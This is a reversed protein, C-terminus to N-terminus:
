FLKSELRTLLKAEIFEEGTHFFKAFSLKDQDIDADFLYSSSIMESLEQKIDAIYPALVPINFIQEIQMTDPHNQRISIVKISKFDSLKALQCLLDYKKPFEHRFESNPSLLLIPNGICISRSLHIILVNPDKANTLLHDCVYRALDFFEQQSPAPIGLPLQDFSGWLLVEENGYISDKLNVIKVDYVYKEQPLWSYNNVYISKVKIFKAVLLANCLSTLQQLLTTSKNLYFATILHCLSFGEMRASVYDLNPAAILKYDRGLHMYPELEFMWQFDTVEELNCLQKSPPDLLIIESSLYIQHYQNNTALHNLLFERWPLNEPVLFCVHLQDTFKRSLAEREYITLLDKKSILL